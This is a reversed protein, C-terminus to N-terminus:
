GFRKMRKAARKRITPLEAYLHRGPCATDNTDRHGDIVPLRVQKGSGYRDSGHSRVKIRGLPNRDYADLKWAALHAIATLVENAPKATEHNGIVSVGVSCHNFGLTHAGQISKGISGKRGVWIRGFRDVLFNYGVDAWGLNQTHYRYIARIIGPVDKRRYDNGNVTHHVHVQKVTKIRDPKGNLFKPNPGWARRLRINPRPVKTPKKAPKAKEGNGGSEDGEDQTADEGRAARRGSRLVTPDAALDGPRSGPDILALVPRSLDGAVEIQVADSAGFWIPATAPTSRAGEDSSPDPGDVLLPLERWATWGGQKRRTRARVVGRGSRWTVGLMAFRTTELVPTRVGRGALGRAAAPTFTLPVDLASVVSRRDRRLRLREAGPAGASPAGAASAGAPAPLLGIVPATAAAAALGALERRALGGRSSSANSSSANPRPRPSSDPASM